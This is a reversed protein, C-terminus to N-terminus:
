IAKKIRSLITQFGSIFVMRIKFPFEKKLQYLGVFVGVITMVITVIAVGLISNFYFVAIADGIINVLAMALVKYFNRDPKNVSDLAVGTFRDIPLFLGYICFVYFVPLSSLYEKGGLVLIVQNAMFFCVLLFPIFLLSTVGSYSYFLRRLENTNGNRHAKSMRPFYTAVFSRLPVELIETMKIPVSFLAVATTGLVPSMGIIFTDASKLLNTGILTGLSFKGYHLIKKIVNIDYYKALKINDWGLFITMLSTFLNVLLYVTVIKEVGWKFYLLDFFLFIVFVGTNVLRILLIKFFKMDAQLVSLANNFPLNIFALLPYWQFFYVFGSQDISSKFLFRIIVLLLSITITLFIGITWNSGILIIREEEPAGSLYKILAVRTIGFRFMEVFTSSTIFLVWKGFTDTTTIRTLLMFSLFGFIAASFNGALSLINNSKLVKKVEM